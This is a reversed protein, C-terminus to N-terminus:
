FIFNLGYLFFITTTAVQGRELSRAHLLGHLGWLGLLEGPSSWLGSLSLSNGFLLCRLSDITQVTCFSIFPTKPRIIVPVVHLIISQALELFIRSASHQTQQLSSSLPCKHPVLKDFFESAVSHRWDLFLYSHIHSTLPSLSCPVASPLCLVIHRTLEASADNPQLFSHRPVWQQRISLSSLSSLNRGSTGSVKFYFSFHFHPCLSLRLSPPSFLFSLSAPTASVLM